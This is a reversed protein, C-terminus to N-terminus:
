EERSWECLNLYSFYHLSQDIEAADEPSIQETQDYDYWYVSWGYHAELTFNDLVECSAFAQRDIKTVNAPITISKIKNCNYFAQVGITKLASSLTVYSLDQCGNFASEEIVEVSDPLEVAYLATSIFASTGITKINSGFIVDSLTWCCAFAHRGVVEVGDGISLYSLSECEMFAGDGLTTVSDPIEVVDLNNCGAFADEGITKLTNPFDVRSIASTNFARDGITILSNGFNVNYLNDCFSFAAEDIRKVGPMVITTLGHSNPFADQEIAIVSKPMIITAVNFNEIFSSAGIIAVGEPVNFTNDEKGYAYQILKTGEKNYLNGDISSYNPNDADVNFNTLARFHAYTWKSIITVNKSITFETIAENGVFAGECFTTVSDPIYISKFQANQFVYERITTVPKGQYTDAIVVREHNGWYGVVEAYTGDESLMYDISDTPAEPPTVPTTGGNNGNSSGGDNSGNGSGNNGSGQGPPPITTDDTEGCAVLCIAIVLIAIILILIKKTKM